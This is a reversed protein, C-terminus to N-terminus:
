ASKCRLVWVDYRPHDLASLAPSAAFMWGTFRPATERRDRITLFARSDSEILNDPAHCADLTIELDGSEAAAGVVLSLDRTAGNLTDLVRLDAAGFQLIRAEGVGQASQSSQASVVVGGGLLAAVTVVISAGKM